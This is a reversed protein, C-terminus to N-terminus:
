GHLFRVSAYCDFVRQRLLLIVEYNKWLLVDFVDCIYRDIILSEDKIAQGNNSGQNNLIPQPIVSDLRITRSPLVDGVQVKVQKRVIRALLM